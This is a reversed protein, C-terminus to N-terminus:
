INQVLFGVLRKMAFPILIKTKMEMANALHVTIKIPKIEIFVMLVDIVLQLVMVKNVFAHKLAM